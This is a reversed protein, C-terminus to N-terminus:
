RRALCYRTLLDQGSGPPGLAGRGDRGAPVVLRDPLPAVAVRAAVADSASVTAESRAVPATVAELPCPSLHNESLHAHGTNVAFESGVAAALPHNPHVARDVSHLIWCQGVVALISWIAAVAIMALRRWVLRFGPM